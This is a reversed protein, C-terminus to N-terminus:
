SIRVAELLAKAKNLTEQYERAPRSDAVIGAGAQIYATNGKVIITRIIICSDLNGEFGFYVVAGAYPGRRTNELENIIEMARIKPSGSVTGAPFTAKIIDYSDKDPSLIGKVSSVIHMVHSYKEVRMFEEVKVKGYRSIRGIDNRGLDVLMLHEAREKEDQLLEKSLKDDQEDNEGRPRTGAIPRTEVVRNECRVLMEPSSGIITVDKLNLYYMYPSPNISRLNRYVQFTDGQIKASLRQSIVVQIIDGKRIYEKAKNVMRMFDAKSYNSRIRFDRKERGDQSIKVPKNLLNKAERIRALAINYLRIKQADNKASALDVTVLIKIKHKIHDFIILLDCLILSLDPLKLDDKKRSIIEYLKPEFFRVMDYGVYGVFGGCFRPLGPLGVFKFNAAINHVEQLPNSRTLEVVEGPKYGKERRLVRMKKSYATVVLAPDYGLFSFRAIHEQGEVSDLLFSFPRNKIKLYASIPTDLDANIEEYVPVMNGHKSLKLFTKKDPYTMILKSSPTLLESPIPTPFLFEM